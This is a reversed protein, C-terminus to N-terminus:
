TKNMNKAVLSQIASQLVLNKFSNGSNEHIFNNSLNQNEICIVEIVCGKQNNQNKKNYFNQIFKLADEYEGIQDVAGLRLAEDSTM